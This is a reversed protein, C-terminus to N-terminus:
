AILELQASAEILWSRVQIPWHNNTADIWGMRLNKANRLRRPTRLPEGALNLVACPLFPKSAAALNRCNRGIVVIDTDIAPGDEAGLLLVGDSQVLQAQYEPDLGGDPAIPTPRDPVVYFGADQLRDCAQHWAAAADPRGHLFLIGGMPADLKRRQAEQWRHEDLIEKIARLRQMVDGSLDILLNYYDDLDRRSDRWALPRSTDKDQDYALYGVAPPLEQPWHTPDTPLVKCVFIRSGAGLTDPLNQRSWSELEQHCWKSRLYHPTMLVVLLASSSVREELHAPLPATEDVNEDARGNEDLFVSIDEFEDSAALEARLDRAFKESWLKLDPDHQGKFAGHSYSVFLDHAFPEGLFPM